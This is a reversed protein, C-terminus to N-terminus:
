LCVIVLCLALLFARGGTVSLRPLCRDPRILCFSRFCLNDAEAVRRIDCFDPLLKFLPAFKESQVGRFLFFEAATEREGRKENLAPHYIFGFLLRPQFSPSQARIRGQFREITYVYWNM